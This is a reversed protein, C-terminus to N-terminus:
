ELMKMTGRVRRLDQVYVVAGEVQDLNGTIEEIGTLLSDVRSEPVLALITKSRSKRSSMFQIMEAYLPVQSIYENMGHSDLITAGEIGSEVFFELLPYLFSQEYLVVTLLSEGQPAAGGAGSPMGARSWRVCTERISEPSRARLLERRLRTNVLLSSISALLKLYEQPREAPGLITTFIRVKKGDLADFSVGRPAVGIVVVFDSLGEIRAHPIAVGDGYATSGGAERAALHAVLEDESIGELRPSQLALRALERLLGAKDRSKLAVSCCLPDIVEFLEM